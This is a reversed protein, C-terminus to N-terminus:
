SKGLHLILIDYALQEAPMVSCFGTWQWLLLSFLLKKGKALVLWWLRNTMRTVNLSYCCSKGHTEM